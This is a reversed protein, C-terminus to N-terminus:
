LNINRKELIGWMMDEVRRNHLPNGVLVVTDRSDLMFIRMQSLSPLCPNTREFVGTTDLYVPQNHVFTALTNKVEEMRQAPVNFVFYFDLKQGSLSVSDVLGNWEYLTKLRCSSCETSDYYVILRYRDTTVDQVYGSSDDAMSLMSDLPLVVRQGYFREM